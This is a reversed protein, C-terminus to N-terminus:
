LNHIAKGLAAHFAEPLIESLTPHPHVSMAVEEATAELNMALAPEAILDTAHPGYIHVGLIEQFQPELIVKVMGRNEGQVM